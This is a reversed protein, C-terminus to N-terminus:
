FDIQMRTAFVDGGCRGRISRAIIRTFTHIWNFMMRHESELVLEIRCDRKRSYNGSQQTFDSVVVRVTAEWAGPRGSEGCPSHAGDM